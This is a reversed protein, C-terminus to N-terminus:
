ELRCPQKLQNNWRVTKWTMDQRRWIHELTDSVEPDPRVLTIQHLSPRLAMTQRIMAMTSQDSGNVVNVWRHFTHKRLSEATFTELLPLRHLASRLPDLHDDCELAPDLYHIRLSRLWQLQGLCAYWDKSGNDAFQITLESLGPLDQWTKMIGNKFAKTASSNLTLRNLKKWVAVARSGLVGGSVVLSRFDLTELLPVITDSMSPYWDKDIRIKCSGPTWRLKEAPSVFWVFETLEPQCKLIKNMATIMLDHDHDAVRGLNFVKFRRLSQPLVERWRDLCKQYEEPDCSYQWGITLNQLSPFSMEAPPMWPVAHFGDENMECALSLSVLSAQFSVIWDVIAKSLCNHNHRRGFDENDPFELVLKTLRKPTTWRISYESSLHVHSLDLSTLNPANLLYTISSPGHVKGKMTLHLQSIQLDQLNGCWRRVAPHITSEHLIRDTFRLHLTRTTSQGHIQVARFSRSVEGIIAQESFNLFRFMHVWLSKPIIPILHQANAIPDADDSQLRRRKSQM